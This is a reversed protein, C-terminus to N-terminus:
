RLADKLSEDLLHGSGAGFFGCEYLAQPDEVLQKLAFVKLLVDLIEPIRQDTFKHNKYNSTAIVFMIYILHYKTMKQVEIAYLENQKEKDTAKSTNLLNYVSILYFASRTKLMTELSELKSFEQVTKATLKSTTLSDLHNIYEFFHTCKKGSKAKKM